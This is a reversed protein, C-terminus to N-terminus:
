PNTLKWFSGGNKKINVELTKHKWPVCAAIMLVEYNKVELYREVIQRKPSPSSTISPHGLFIPDITLVHTKVRIYGM